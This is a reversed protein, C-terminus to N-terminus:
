NCVLAKKTVAHPEAPAFPGSIEIYEPYINVGADRKKDAPIKAFDEDNEFRARIVHENSTVFVRTEVLSRQTGGGARNVASIEVPQVVTKVPVGDLLVVVTVPKLSLLNPDDPKKGDNGRRGPVGVGLM